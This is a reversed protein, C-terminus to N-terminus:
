KRRLYYFLSDVSIFSIASDSKTIFNFQHTVSDERIFLSNEDPAMYYSGKASDQSDLYHFTSDANFQIAIPTSDKALALALLGINKSSDTSKNELSDIIWQGQINFPERKPDSSGFLGCSIATIIAVATVTAIVIKNKM